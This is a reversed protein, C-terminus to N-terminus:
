YKAMTPSPRFFFCANMGKGLANACISAYVDEGQIQVGTKSEM